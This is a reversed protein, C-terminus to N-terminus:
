EIFDFFPQLWRTITIAGDKFFLKLKNRMILGAGSVDSGIMWNSKCFCLFNGHFNKLRFRTSVHFNFFNVFCFLFLMTVKELVLPNIKLCGGVNFGEETTYQFATKDIKKYMLNLIKLEEAKKRIKM